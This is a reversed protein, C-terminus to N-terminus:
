EQPSILLLQIINNPIDKIAYWVDYGTIKWDSKIARYDAEQPTKSNNYFYYNGPINFASGIGTITSSTPTLFDTKVEGMNEELLLSM